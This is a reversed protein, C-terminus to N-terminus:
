HCLKFFSFKDFKKFWDSNIKKLEEVNISFEKNLELTEKQTQAIIEEKIVSNSAFITLDDPLYSSARINCLPILIIAAM